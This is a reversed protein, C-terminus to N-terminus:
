GVNPFSRARSATATIVPDRGYFSSTLDHGSMVSTQLNDFNGAKTDEFHHPDVHKGAM